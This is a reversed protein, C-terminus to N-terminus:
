KKFLNGKPWLRVRDAAQHLLPDILGGLNEGAPSNRTNFLVGWCLGDHRRVLLTSTGDLTGGHWTNGSLGVTRVSWGCGYYAEQPKGNADLGARGPPRGFMTAIGAPHLVKCRAPVDFASAFRVLEEASAIWGGHADMAELNWAGYPLPVPQGVHPSFVSPRTREKEDYYKVEGPARGAPLTKGLRMARIGLPALVEKRVYDEYSQGSVKEVLRGLVCYGFNSYAYEQGPDFQLPQGMMYRIVQEPGVPPPVDFKRAIQVSRFMPDFSKDRDWGGRHQLLYLVTIQKLRPDLKEGSPPSGGVNM